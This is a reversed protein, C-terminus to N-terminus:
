LIIGYENSTNNLPVTTSTALLAPNFNSTSPPTALPDRIKCLCNQKQVYIESNFLNERMGTNKSLTSTTTPTETSTTAAATTATTTTIAPAAVSSAAATTTISILEATPLEPLEVIPMFDHSGPWYSTSQLSDQIEIFEKLTEYLPVDSNLSEVQVQSNLDQIEFNDSIQVNVDAASSGEETCSVLDLQKHQQQASILFKLDETFNQSTQKTEVAYKHQKSRQAEGRISWLNEPEKPIRKQSLIKNQLSLSLHSLHIAFPGTNPLLGFKEYMWEPLVILQYKTKNPYRKDFENKEVSCHRKICPINKFFLLEGFFYEPNYNKYNSM